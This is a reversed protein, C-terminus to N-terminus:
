PIGMGTWAVYDGPTRQLVEAFAKRASGLNGALIQVTAREGSYGSASPALRLAQDLAPRLSSRPAAM